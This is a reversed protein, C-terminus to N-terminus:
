LATVAACFLMESTEWGLIERLYNAIWSEAHKVEAATVKGFDTGKTLHRRIMKNKNEKGGGSM